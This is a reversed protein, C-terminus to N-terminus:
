TQSPKAKFKERAERAERAKWTEKTARRPRKRPAGDDSLVTPQTPPRTRKRIPAGQTDAGPNPRTAEHTVMPPPSPPPEAFASASETIRSTLVLILSLLASIFSLRLVSGERQNRNAARKSTSFYFNNPSGNSELLRHLCWPNRHDVRKVEVAKGLKRKTSRDHWGWM